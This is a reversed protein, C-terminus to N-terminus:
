AAPTTRRIRWDRLLQKVSSQSIGFQEALERSTTGAQYRSILDRIDTESLRDSIRWVRPAQESRVSGGKEPELSDTSRLREVASVLEFLLDSRKSYSMLLDVMHKMTGQGPTKCRATDLQKHAPAFTRTLTPRQTRNGQPTKSCTTSAEDHVTDIGTVSRSGSRDAIGVFNRRGATSGCGATSLCAGANRDWVPMFEVM